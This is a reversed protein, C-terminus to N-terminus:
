PSHTNSREPPGNASVGKARARSVKNGQATARRQLNTQSSRSKDWHPGGGCLKALTTNAQPHPACPGWLRPEAGPSGAAAAGCLRKQQTPTGEGGRGQGRGRGGGRTRGGAGRLPRPHRTRQGLRVHTSPRQATGRSPKPLQARPGSASSRIDRVHQHQQSVLEPVFAARCTMM